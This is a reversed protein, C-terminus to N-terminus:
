DHRTMQKWLTLTPTLAVGARIISAIDNQWSTSSPVTHAIVDVRGLAARRMDDGTNPHLFVLKGADHAVDVITRLTEESVNAGHAASNASAFVKIADAGLDLLTRTASAGQGADGIEPLPVKMWGMMRSVLEPPSAGIPVMGEGTTLIRPGEIEGAEVRRRIAQTNKYLSSLDFVSTFGYRTLDRLQTALEAAPLADADAWKRETFHVHCNWFGSTITAGTCDIVRASRPVDVLAATGVAAIHSGEIILAGRDIRPSWPDLCITGGILATADMARENSGCHSM